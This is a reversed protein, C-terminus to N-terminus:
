VMSYGIAKSTIPIALPSTTATLITRNDILTEILTNILKHIILRPSWASEKEHSPNSPKSYLVTANHISGRKRRKGERSSLQSNRKRTKPVAQKRQFPSPPINSQFSLFFSYKSQTHITEDNKSTKKKGYRKVHQQLTGSMGGEEEGRGFRKGREM